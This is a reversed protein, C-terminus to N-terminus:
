RSRRLTRCRATAPPSSSRTCTTAALTSPAEYDPPTVFSLAGTASDIAFLAADPGGAIAYSVTDGDLDSASVTTVATQNEAVSVAASEVGGLSTITVGENVNTVMIQISQFTSSTGDSASVMVTYFNDSASDLPAEYDPATVFTLVGTTEDIAFLDADPGGLISYRIPDGEVDSAVVTTVATGNEPRQLAASTGGGDSIIVPSENVNEVAVTILQHTGTFAM